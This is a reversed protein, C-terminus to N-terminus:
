FLAGLPFLDKPHKKIPKIEIDFGYRLYLSHGFEFSNADAVLVVCVVGFFCVLCELVTAVATAVLSHMEVAVATGDCESM